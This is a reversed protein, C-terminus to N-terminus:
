PLPSMTLRRAAETRRLGGVKPRGHRKLAKRIYKLATAKNQTKKVLSELVKGECDVARWLDHMEGNIRVYVKDLYRHWHSYARMHDVLECRIEAAVMAGGPEM